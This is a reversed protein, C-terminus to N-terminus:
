RLIQGGMPDEWEISYSKDYFKKFWQLFELSAKFSNRAISEIPVAKDIGLRRFADQLLVLNHICEDSDLYQSVKLRRMDICGPFMHAMMQCYPVGTVMEGVETYKVKLLCSVWSMLASRSM